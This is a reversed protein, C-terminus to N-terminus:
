SRQGVFQLCSRESWDHYHKKSWYFQSSKSDENAPPHALPQEKYLNTGRQSQSDSAREVWSHLSHKGRSWLQDPTHLWVPVKCGQQIASYLKDKSYELNTIGIPMSNAGIVM